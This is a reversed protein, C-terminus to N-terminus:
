PSVHGTGGQMPLRLLSVTAIVACGYCVAPIGQPLASHRTPHTILTIWRPRGEVGGCVLGKALDRSVAHVRRRSPARTGALPEASAAPASKVGELRYTTLRIQSLPRSEGSTVLTRPAPARSSRTLRKQPVRPAREGGDPM